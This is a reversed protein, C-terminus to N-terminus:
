RILQFGRVVRNGIDDDKDITIEVGNELIVIQYNEIGKEHIFRKIQDYTEPHPQLQGNLNIKQDRELLKRAVFENIGRFIAQDGTESPQIDPAKERKTGSVKAYEGANYRSAEGQGKIYSAIERDANVVLRDETDSLAGIVYGKDGNPNFTYQLQSTFAMDEHAQYPFPMWGGVAQFTTKSTVTFGGLTRPTFDPTLSKQRYIFEDLELYAKLSPINEGVTPSRIYNTSVALTRTNLRNIAKPILGSSMQVIDADVFVMPLDRDDGIIKTALDALTKKADRVNNKEPVQEEFVFVSPSKKITEVADLVQQDVKSRDGKYNHYIIFLYDDISQGSEGLSESITNYTTALDTENMAAMCIVGRKQSCETKAEPHQSELSNLKSLYASNHIMWYNQAIELSSISTWIDDFQTEDITKNKFAISAQGLKECRINSFGLVPEDLGSRFLAEPRYYQLLKDIEGRREPKLSAIKAFRNEYLQGRPPQIDVSM